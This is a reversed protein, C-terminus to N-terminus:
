TRNAERVPMLIGRFEEDGIRTVTIPRLHGSGAKSPKTFIFRMDRHRASGRGLKVKPGALQAVKAPDFACVGLDSYDEAAPFLPKYRPFEGPSEFPIGLVSAPVYTLPDAGSGREWALSIAILDPSTAKIVALASKLADVPVSVSGAVRDPDPAAIAHEGLVYRDTAAFVWGDTDWAINVTNLAPMTRDTDACPLVSSVGRLFADTPITTGARTVTRDTDIMTM